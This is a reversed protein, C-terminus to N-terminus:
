KTPKHGCMTKKTPRRDGEDLSKAPGKCENGRGNGALGKGDGGDERQTEVREVLELVIGRDQSAM